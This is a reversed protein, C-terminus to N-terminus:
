LNSLLFWKIILRSFSFCRFGTKVHFCFTVTPSGTSLLPDLGFYAKERQRATGEAATATFPSRESRSERRDGKVAM